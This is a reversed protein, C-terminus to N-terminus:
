VNKYATILYTQKEYVDEITVNRFGSEKLAQEIYSNTLFYYQSEKQILYNYYIIKIAPFILKLVNLIGRFIGDRLIQKKIGGLYIRFSSWGEKPSTLVIKGNPKLIRYFELFLRKQAQETLTYIVNNSAIKDFFNDSFPLPENLDGKIVNAGPQKSKHIAIGAESYDFGTVNANKSAIKISLNGTGSGADLINENGKINLKEVVSDLMEEYPILKNLFDYDRFYKKWFNTNLM